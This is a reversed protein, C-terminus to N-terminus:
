MGLMKRLWPNDVEIVEASAVSFHIRNSYPNYRLRSKVKGEESTREVETNFMKVFDEPHYRGKPIHLCLSRRVGQPDLGGKMFIRISSTLPPKMNFSYSPIFNEALGAEWKGQLHIKNPLMIHFHSLSNRNKGGAPLPSNSPLNLYFNSCNEPSSLSM